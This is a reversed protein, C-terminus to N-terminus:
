KKKIHMTQEMALNKLIRQMRRKELLKRDTSLWKAEAERAVPNARSQWERDRSWHAGPNKVEVQFRGKTKSRVKEEVVLQM